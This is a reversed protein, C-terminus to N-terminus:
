LFIILPDYLNLFPFYPPDCIASIFFENELIVFFLLYSVKILLRTKHYFCHKFLAFDRIGLDLSWIALQMGISSKRRLIVYFLTNFDHIRTLLQLEEGTM